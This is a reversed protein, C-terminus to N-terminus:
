NGSINVLRVRSPQGEGIAFAVDITDGHVIERPEINVFLYGREQYEAYAAGQAKEIRSQDYEDGRKPSWLKELNPAEVVQNGAWTVNGMAYPQGEDVKVVLTLHKPSDGPRLEQGVYRM